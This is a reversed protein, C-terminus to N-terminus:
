VLGFNLPSLQAVCESQMNLIMTTKLNGIFSSAATNFLQLKPRKYKKIKYAYFDNRLDPFVIAKRCCHYFDRLQVTFVIPLISFSECLFTGSRFEPQGLDKQVNEVDFVHTDPNITGDIYNKKEILPVM